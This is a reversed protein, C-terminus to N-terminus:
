AQALCNSVVEFVDKSLGETQKIKKLEAEMQSQRTADYKRWRTFSRAIRAAVQPNMRDLRSVQESLFKYGSGDIPMHVNASGYGRLLAYVKNPVSESYSEHATLGKVIDFVDDRTCTSQIALWKDVVLLDSKWKEYFEELAIEREPSTSSALIRLAALVDTMNTGSRVIKLCLEFVAKSGLTALYTLAVNKLVRKGQSDPDLKYEKSDAVGEDFIKQLDARLNEALQKMFYKRAARIRVPDAVEVQETIYAEPPLVFVEARLAADIETNTLTQKFSNIIAEPVPPFEDDSSICKVIFNLALKQGSEWRNFEDTDNAMLFALEDDSVGGVRELKVPASFGRLLSPVSGKPVNYLVFTEDRSSFNLVKTLTPESGDGLDVPVSSGDPGIIGMRIPILMAETTPQKSTAPIMQNLKLSLTSDGDNYSVDVTVVPTGSQNYWRRFVTLDVNPNADQIAQVWDECTVAKGDNRSFYIDTGKRFGEPGVLTKLMRIVEAGKNYVTATYFSNCTIYSAPRIPHSMPGADEAFQATRLIAVDRIRKVTESNMDASFSQDRFVTLGEKLSLQFWSSVTVRNGSYNHFYEHAVVGEVNNFDTDTATEPSVLVYKSNFINLSTNEMAGFVFTPVAVINFIDYNYELGYVDEDWKMAKKLSRMAHHCKRVESEGKVYVKLNVERGNMTVFKDSLHSLDGAVLAFLYCPKPFPDEFQAWHRNDSSEGSSVCNGNSLLVPCKKRDAELRVSFTAMVDPRDVYFTIRRFGEAECQTCYDGQSMYLGELVTNKAPRIKVVSEFTFDSTPLVAPSITLTSAAQDYVYDSDQLVTGDIKLSAPQLALAEGDLVLPTGADCAPRIQLKGRVLTDLGDDDLEFCLDAHSVFYPPPAYDALYKVKPEASIPAMVPETSVDAAARASAVAAAAPAAMARRRLAATFPPTFASRTRALSPSAAPRLLSFCTVFATRRVARHMTKTAAFAPPHAARASHPNCRTRRPGATRAKDIVSRKRAGQDATCRTHVSSHVSDPRMRAPGSAAVCVRTWCQKREGGRNRVEPSRGAGTRDEVGLQVASDRLRVSRRGLLVVARSVDMAHDFQSMMHHSSAGTPKTEQWEAYTGTQCQKPFALRASIMM